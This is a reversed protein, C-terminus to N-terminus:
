YQSLHREEVDEELVDEERDEGEHRCCAERGEGLRAPTFPTEECVRVRSCASRGVRGSSRWSLQPRVAGAARKEVHM